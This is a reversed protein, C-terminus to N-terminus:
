QCRHGTYGPPCRCTGTAPDCSGNNACEPCIEQCGLGWRGDPCAQGCDHGTWGPLCLCQGTSRDC